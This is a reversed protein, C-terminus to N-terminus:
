STMDINIKIKIANLRLIVVHLIYIYNFKYRAMFDVYDICLRRHYEKTTVWGLVPWWGNHSCTYTHAYLQKTHYKNYRDMM